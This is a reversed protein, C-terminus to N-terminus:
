HVANTKKRLTSLGFPLYLPCSSLFSTLVFIAALALLVIGLTGPLINTFYLTAIIAALIMRIIRDAVGMNKKM